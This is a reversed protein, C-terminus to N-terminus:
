YINMDINNKLVATLSKLLFIGLPLFALGFIHFHKKRKNNIQTKAVACPSERIAGFHLSSQNPAHAEWQLPKKQQLAHGRSHVPKLPQLM